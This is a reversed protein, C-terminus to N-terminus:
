PGYNVDVIGSATGGAGDPCNVEVVVHAQGVTASGQTVTARDDYVWCYGGSPPTADVRMTATPDINLMGIVLSGSGSSEPSLPGIDVTTGRAAHMVAFPANLTGRVDLSSGQELDIQDDPTATPADNKDFYIVTDGYGPAAGHDLDMMSPSGSAVDLDLKGQQIFYLLVPAEATVTAGILNLDGEFIYVGGKLFYTGPSLRVAIGDGVDCYTGPPITAENSFVTNTACPGPTPPHWGSLAQPQVGQMLRVPSPSYHDGSCSGQYCAIFGQNTAGSQLQILSTVSGSGTVQPTANFTIPGQAALTGEISSALGPNLVCVACQQALLNATVGPNCSETTYSVTQGSLVISAQSGAVCSGLSFPSGSGGHVADAGAFLAAGESAADGAAISSANAQELEVTGTFQLMATTVLGFFAIVALAMILAQGREAPRRRRLM